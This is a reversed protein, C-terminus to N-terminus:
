MLNEISQVVAASGVHPAEWLAARPRSQVDCSVQRRGVSVRAFVWCVLPTLWFGRRVDGSTGRHLPLIVRLQSRHVNCRVFAFAKYLGWYNKLLTFRLSIQNLVSVQRTVKHESGWEKHTKLPSLLIIVYSSGLKTPFTLCPLLPLSRPVFDLM